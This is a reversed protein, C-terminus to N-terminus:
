KGTAAKKDAPKDTTFGKKKFIALQSPHIEVADGEEYFPSTASQAPAYVTVKKQLDIIPSGDKEKNPAETTGVSTSLTMTEPGTAGTAGPTKNDDAM